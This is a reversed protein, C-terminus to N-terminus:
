NLIIFIKLDNFLNIFHDIIEFYVFYEYEWLNVANQYLLYDTFTINDSFEIIKNIDKRIKNIVYNNKEEQNTNLLM